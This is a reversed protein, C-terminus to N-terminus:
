VIEKQTFHNRLDPNVSRDVRSRFPRKPDDTWDDGLFEFEPSTSRPDQTFNFLEYAPISISDEDYKPYSIAEIGYETIKALSYAEWNLFGPPPAAQVFSPKKIVPDPYLRAGVGSRELVNQLEKLGVFSLLLVIVSAGLSLTLPYTIVAIVLSIVLEIL